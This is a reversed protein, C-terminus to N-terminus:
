KGHTGAIPNPTLADIKSRLSANETLLAANQGQLINVQTSLETLRQTIQALMEPSIVPTPTPRRAASEPRETPEEPTPLFCSVAGVMVVALFAETIWRKKAM